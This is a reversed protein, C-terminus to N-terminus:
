PHTEDAEQRAMNERGLQRASSRLLIIDKYGRAAATVAGIQNVVHEM